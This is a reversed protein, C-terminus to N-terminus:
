RRAERLAGVMGRDVVFDVVTDLGTGAKLNTFV